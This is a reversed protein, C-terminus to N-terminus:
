KIDKLITKIHNVSKLTKKLENFKNKEIMNKMLELNEIYHNLSKVVNLKNDEFIDVWMEPSSKALRVTSEFGSGAMDFINKENKEKDIVTKGLM